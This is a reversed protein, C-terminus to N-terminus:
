KNSIVHRYIKNFQEGIVNNSFQYAFNRLLNKDYSEYKVIIEQMAEKLALTVKPKIFVGFKEDLVSTLGGCRSTVVPIGSALSEAIVISFSEYNSFM